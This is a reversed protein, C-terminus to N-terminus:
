DGSHRKPTAQATYKSSNRGVSAVRRKLRANDMLFIRDRTQVPEDGTLDIGAFLGKSRSYTLLEANLKWDTVTPSPQCL